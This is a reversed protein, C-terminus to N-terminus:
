LPIQIVDAIDELMMEEEFRLTLVERHILPLTAVASALLEGREYELLQDLPNSTSAVLRDLPATGSDDPANLSSDRRRRLHDITLNRAVSFLWADFNRRADFQRIKEIVRIWTQQFLDEALASDQSLRLLFRYLRHQYPEMLESLANLDGRRVREVASAVGSLVNPDMSATLIMVITIRTLPGFPGM